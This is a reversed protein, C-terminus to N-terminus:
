IEVQIPNASALRFGLAILIPGHPPGLGGSPIGFAELLDWLRFSHVLHRGLFGKHLTHAVVRQILDNSDANGPGWLLTQSETRACHGIAGQRGGWWSVQLCPQLLSEFPLLWLAGLELGDPLLDGPKRTAVLPQQGLSAWPRWVHNFPSNHAGTKKTEFSAQFHIRCLAIQNKVKLPSKAGPPAWM